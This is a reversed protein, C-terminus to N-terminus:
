IVAIKIGGGENRNSHHGAVTGSTWMYSGPEMLRNEGYM